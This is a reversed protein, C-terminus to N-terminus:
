SFTLLLPLKASFNAPNIQPIDKFEVVTKFTAQEGCRKMVVFKKVPNPPFYYVKCDQYVFYYYHIDSVNFVHFYANCLRCEYVSIDSDWNSDAPGSYITQQQCFHCKM